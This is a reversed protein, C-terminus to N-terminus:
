NREWNGPDHYFLSKEGIRFVLIDVKDVVKYRAKCSACLAWAGKIAYLPCSCVSQMNRVRFNSGRQLASCQMSAIQMRKGQERAASPVPLHAFRDKSQM